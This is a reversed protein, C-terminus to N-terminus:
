PGQSERGMEKGVWPRESPLLWTRASDRWEAPAAAGLVIVGMLYGYARSLLTLGELRKSLRAPESIWSTDRVLGLLRDAEDDAQEIAFVEYPHTPQKERLALALQIWLYQGDSGSDFPMGLSKAVLEAPAGESAAALRVIRHEVSPDGHSKELAAQLEGNDLLSFARYPGDPIDGRQMAMYARLDEVHSYLQEVDLLGPQARELRVLLIAANRRLAPLQRVSVLLAAVASTYDRNSALHQAAAFALWPHNRFRQHAQEFATGREALPLCRLKIYLLDPDDSHQNSLAANRACLAPRAAPSAADYEARLAVVENPHRRLRAQLIPGFDGLASALELWDLIGESQEEDWTAHVRILQQREQPASLVELLGQPSRGTLASLVSRTTGGGKTELQEPPNEFVYDADTTSWRVTGLPKEKPRKPAWGYSAVWQVLISSGGIDYAYERPSSTDVEFQEIVAGGMTRATVSLRATPELEMRTSENPGLRRTTTGLTVRVERGLGNIVHVRSESLSGGFGLVAALLGGAVVLRAGAPLLGDAMIFRDWADLKLQRERETGPARITYRSPVTAPKPAPGPDRGSSFCDAVYAEVELLVELTKRHLAGLVNSFKSAWGAHEDTWQAINEVSPIPLSFRGPLMEQFTAVELRQALPEPLVIPRTADFAENMAMFLETAARVLRRREAASVRGDATVVSLVNRFHGWADDVDAEAHAAFHLLAALSRLYESWGQGLSRAAAIHVSRCRQDHEDLARRAKDREQEVSLIAAPLDRRKLTRGRHRIVGGPATLIGNRLAGLVGVEEQLKRYREVEARLQPPYLAGLSSAIQEPAPEEAYLEDVRRADLVASRGLYAGRYRRDLARSRFPKDAAALAEEPSLSGECPGLRTALEETVRRRLAEPEQFLLWASRDDLPAEVYRSKVNQERERNPPHSSWMRPAQALAEEFVRHQARGADPLAPPQGHTPEDLVARMTEIIRSQLAFLDPVRKGKSHEVGLVRVAQDWADDAAVLRHLAHVLADSGSVSVAVLDAQLEMERGLARQALLVLSFVTDLVARLSWVVLRVIWGFWALRLDARCLFALAGDFWDRKAVISAAVQQALYVWRGVAMSRQAFHGFEHALVAKFEGLSLVNVLGLGIELNRKSPVFLSWSSLDYFVAANVRPSLFVRHPRPAGTEDALRYLFRFLAPEEAETLELETQASSRTIGFLGKILFVFLLLAAAGALFAGVPNTGGTMSAVLNTWATRAFWLCLLLYIVVFGVLVLSAIWAHRRYAGRPRSLDTVDAGPGEPYLEPSATDTNDAAV